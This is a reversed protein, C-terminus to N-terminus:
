WPTSDFFKQTEAQLDKLYALYNPGTLPLLFLVDKKCDEIFEPDNMVDMVLKDLTDAVNKEIGAPAAFGRTATMNVTFGQEISTPVDPVIDSRNDDLIAIIRADGSKHQGHMQTLNMFSADVHGGLVLSKQETSGKTPLLNFTVGTNNEFKKAAVFDDSGIGNVAVTLAKAKAAEVFGKMDTIPSDKPVAIILPDQMMNGIIHFSDLTYRARKAVVHSVVQTTFIMGITYGDPKARAIEEFGKQGGSGPVNKIIFDAGPLLKKATKIFIRASTDTSGGAKSPIIITIPKEPYAAQLLGPLAFFLVTALALLKRM